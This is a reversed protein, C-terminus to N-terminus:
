LRSLHFGGDTYLVAGTSFALDGCLIARVLKGVDEPAGWRQQPVLGEAILADYKDKVKSTMDTAMIGPRVEHVQINEAALRVAWLRAAMALGAKSICYEGRAVSATEASISSVFVVKRGTEIRSAPAGGGDMGLWRRVVTQTLFYPGALNVDVVHHFSEETAETIDLRQRPGIGANNVLADITGFRNWVEDVMRARDDAIGIDAQFVAYEGSGIRECEERTQEAAERNGAYNIAVSFGAGALQLAIGRGIGRSGGTVLAVPAKTDAM